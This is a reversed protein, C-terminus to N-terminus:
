KLHNLTRYTLMNNIEDITFINPLENKNLYIIKEEKGALDFYNDSFRCYVVKLGIEVYKAFHESYVSIKYDSEREEVDIKIEPDVFKYYKAPVFIHTGSSIIDQGKQLKYEFFIERRDDMSKIEEEFNLSEFKNSSLPEVSVYFSGEKLITSDNKRLSWTGVGDFKILSENVVFLDIKRDKDLITLLIPSYFRKAFYHLAKWRGFYDISSWSAVPWCDNLQWYLAGMCRGRNRRWHEVGYRIAEAQLIQSAYILSNLDSPYKFNESLYYLIKGNAQGNKQHKEMVYSFINRDEEETFSGITEMCPFSQFGFESVFRFYYKKYETFPKLGHWVDWYHVDGRNEDNPNDFHGGSSPSSKWYFVDPALQKAISPLIIEFQKVYDTRLKPVKPFGWDVWGSEMENNGCLVGLCAHHRIRKINDKAEEIISDEFEQNMEYVACAFMLDQWVILGYEDCLDYFYDDPYIGGGWVRLCNFNAEVCDKILKETREKSCRALISDEPIYNAGMAFISIGNINFEFSEGWEDKNQKITLTRLGIRLKRQDLIDEQNKLKVEVTYLPQTGFGNPWWLKPNDINASIINEKEAKTEIEHIKKGDPSYILIEYKLRASDGNFIHTNLKINLSVNENKHIQEIYIDEIKGIKYGEIQIGRWIGMDPLKPAWDWGSMYHAKRLHPFGEITDPSGWLPLEKHKEKMFKTPSHLIIKIANNGESIHSKLDFEYTRHMNNTTALLKNNIYITSLTDIGFCKLYIKDNQLFDDPIYFERRYEYDYEMLKLAKDENDRFYPDDMLRASILDNYVSGPVSASIWKEENTRKMEWVGNLEIKNM